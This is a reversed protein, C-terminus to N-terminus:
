QRIELRNGFHLKHRYEYQKEYLSSFNSIYKTSPNQVEKLIILTVKLFNEFILQCMRFIYNDYM